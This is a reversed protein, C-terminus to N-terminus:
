EIPAEPHRVQRVSYTPRVQYEATIVFRLPELDGKLGRCDHIRDGKMHPGRKNDEYDTDYAHGCPLEIIM